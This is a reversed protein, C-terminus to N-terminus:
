AFSRRSKTLGALWMGLGLMAFVVAFSAISMAAALPWDLTDRIAQWILLPVILVNDGGIYLAFAFSSLVITVTVFAASLAGPLTLPLVVLFFTRWPGAGLSLAAEELQRGVQVVATILPILAYPFAVHVLAIVLGTETYLLKLSPGFVSQLGKTLASGPGLLLIWAFVLVVFNTLLPSLLLGIVLGKGAFRGRALVYAVPYALLLSFFVVWFCVRVTLMMKSVYFPDILYRRYNDLTFGPKMIINPEHLFLSIRVLKIAPMVLFLAMLLLAPLLALWISARQWRMARSAAASM